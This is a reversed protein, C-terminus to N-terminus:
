RAGDPLNGALRTDAAARRRDLLIRHVGGHAAHGFHWGCAPLPHRRLLTLRLQRCHVYGVFRPRRQALARLQRRPATTGDALLPQLAKGIHREDSEVLRAVTAPTLRAIGTFHLRGVADPTEYSLRVTDGELELGGWKSWRLAESALLAEGQEELLAAFGQPAVYNDGPVVLLEEDPAAAAGVRLADLTGTLEKQRAYEVAVGHRGGDGFLSMVSEAGHGIVLVLKRVGADRLGAVLHELITRNALPLMGKPRSATWGRLRAAEGATLIVARM